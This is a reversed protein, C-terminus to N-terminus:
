GGIAMWIGVTGAAVAYVWLAFRRGSRRHPQMTLRDRLFTIHTSM